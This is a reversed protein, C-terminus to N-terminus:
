AAGALRISAPTDCGISGRGNEFGDPRAALSAALQLADLEGREFKRALFDAARLGGAKEIFGRKTTASAASAKDIRLLMDRVRTRGEALRKSASVEEEKSKRSSTSSTEKPTDTKGATIEALQRNKRGSNATKGAKEGPLNAPKGATNEEAKAERLHVIRYVTRAGRRGFAGQRTVQLMGEEVFAKLAAAAADRGVGWEAFDRSGCAFEESEKHTARIAIWVMGASPQNIRKLAECEPKRVFAFGRESCDNM